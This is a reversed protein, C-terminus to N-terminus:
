VQNEGTKAKIFYPENKIPAFKLGYLAPNAFIHALALLRPVYDQTEKPLNLSWYDTKLGNAVNKSIAANVTGQGCNYAALALLWDGKYHTKLDILFHIAARTSAQIDLREDNQENQKLGYDNGTAPMFQWLGVAGKPSQAEPQYASEVIPLLALELPLKKKSLEEVIGYLYPRARETVQYLYRPKQRFFDIHKQIRADILSKKPEKKEKEPIPPPEIKTVEALHDDPNNIPIASGFRIKLGLETYNNVPVAAKQPEIIYNSKKPEEVIKVPENTFTETKETPQIALDQSPPTTLFPNPMQMGSRVREWIDISKVLKESNKKNFEAAVPNIQFLFSSLIIGHIISLFQRM